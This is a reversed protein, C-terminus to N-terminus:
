KKYTKRLGDTDMIIYPAAVFCNLESAARMAQLLHFHEHVDSGKLYSLAHMAGMGYEDGAGVCCYNMAPRHYQFDSEIVYLRGAWGIIFTGGSYRNDKEATFHHKYLSESVADVVSVIHIDGVNKSPINPLETKHQLIQGM